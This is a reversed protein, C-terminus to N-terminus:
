FLLILILVFFGIELLTYSSSALMSVDSSLFDLVEYVGSYMSPYTWEGCAPGWSLIAFLFGSCILPAGSDGECVDQEDPGIACWQTKRQLDGDDLCRCMPPRCLILLCDKRSLLTVDLVKLYESLTSYVTGNEVVLQNGWGATRCVQSSKSMNELKEIAKIRNTSYLPVTSVVGGKFHKQFPADLIYLAYDFRWSYVQEECKEHPLLEKVHRIQEDINNKLKLVGGVVIVDERDFLIHEHNFFISTCHCATLVKKLSLLNGSCFHHRNKWQLSVIYPFDEQFAMSGGVIKKMSLGNSFLLTFVFSCLVLFM